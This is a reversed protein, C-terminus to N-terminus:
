QHRFGGVSLVFSKAKAFEISAEKYRRLKYLSDAYKVHGIPLMSGELKLAPYTRVAMEIQNSVLCKSLRNFHIM